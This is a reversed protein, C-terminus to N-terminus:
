LDIFCNEKFMNQTNCNVTNNKYKLNKRIEIKAFLVHGLNLLKSHCRCTIKYFM